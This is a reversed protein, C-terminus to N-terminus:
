NKLVLWKNGEYIVQHLYTLLGEIRFPKAIFGRFGHSKIKELEDHNSSIAIIPIGALTTHTRIWNLIHYGDVFPLKIDILIADINPQLNMEICLKFQEFNQLGIFQMSINACLARFISLTTIDDDIVLINTM